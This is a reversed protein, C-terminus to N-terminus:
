DVIVLRYGRKKELIRHEIKKKIITATRVLTFLSADNLKEYIGWRGKDSFRTTFPMIATILEM